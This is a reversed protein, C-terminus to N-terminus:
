FWFFSQFIAKLKATTSIKAAEAKLLIQEIKKDLRRELDTKTGFWDIPICEIPRRDEKNRALPDAGAKLLFELAEIWRVEVARHLPTNGREDLTHIDIGAKFLSKFMPLLNSYDHSLHEAHDFFYTWFLTNLARNLITIPTFNVLIKFGELHHTRIAHEIAIEREWFGLRAVTTDAGNQVLIWIIKLEEESNGGITDLAQFLPTSGSSGVANVNAGYQILAKVLPMDKRIVARHLPSNGNEDRHDMDAHNEALIRVVSINTAMALPVIGGYTIANVNASYAILTEIMDMNNDLVAQHLPTKGEELINCKNINAGSQILEPIIEICNARVAEYLAVTKKDSLGHELLYKVRHDNLVKSTEREFNTLRQSVCNNTTNIILGM